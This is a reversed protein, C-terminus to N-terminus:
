PRSRGAVGTFLTEVEKDTFPRKAEAKIPKPKALSQGQGCTRTSSGRGSPGSGCTLRHLLHGQESDKPPGRRSSRRPSTAGAIRRTVKEIAEPHRGASVMRHVQRRSEPLGDATQPKMPREAIWQDVLRHDPHGEWHRHRPVRQSPCSGRGGRDGGSPRCTPEDHHGVAETRDAPQRRDCRRPRPTPGTAM